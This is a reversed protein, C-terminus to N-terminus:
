RRFPASIPSQRALQYQYDATSRLTRPAALRHLPMPSFTADSCIVRLEDSPAMGAALIAKAADVIPSASDTVITSGNYDASYHGRQVGPLIRNKHTQM